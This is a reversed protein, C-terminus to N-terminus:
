ADREHMDRLNGHTSPRIRPARRHVRPFAGRTRRSGGTRAGRCIPLTLNLTMWKTTWRRAESCTSAVGDLTKCLHSLPNRRAGRRKHWDSCALCAACTRWDNLLGVQKFYVFDAVTQVIITFYPRKFFWEELTIYKNNLIISFIMILIIGNNRYRKTNRIPVCHTM